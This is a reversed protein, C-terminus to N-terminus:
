LVLSFAVIFCKLVHGIYV